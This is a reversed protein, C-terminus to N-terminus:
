HQNNWHFELFNRFTLILNFLYFGKMNPTVDPNSSNQFLFFRVALFPFAIHIQIWNGKLSLWIFIEILFHVKRNVMFSGSIIRVDVKTILFQFVRKSWRGRPINFSSWAMASSKLHCNKKTLCGYHDVNEMLQYGREMIKKMRRTQLPKM